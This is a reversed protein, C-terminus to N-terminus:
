RLDELHVWAIVTRRGNWPAALLLEGMLGLDVAEVGAEDRPWPQRSSWACSRPASHSCTTSSVSREQASSRLIWNQRSLCFRSTSKTILVPRTRAIGELATPRRSTRDPWSRASRAECGFAPVEEDRRDGALRSAPAVTAERSRPADRVQSLQGRLAVGAVEVHRALRPDGGPNHRSASPGHPPLVVQASGSSV